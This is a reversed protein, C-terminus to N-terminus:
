LSTIIECADFYLKDDYVQELYTSIKEKRFQLDCLFNQYGTNNEIDIICDSMLKNIRYCIFRTRNSDKVWQAMMLIENEWLIPPCTQLLKEVMQDQELLKNNWLIQESLLYCNWYIRIEQERDPCENLLYKRFLIAAIPDNIIGILSMCNIRKMQKMIFTRKRYNRLLNRLATLMNPTRRYGSQDGSEVDKSTSAM